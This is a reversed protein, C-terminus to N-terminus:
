ASFAWTPLSAPAYREDSAFPRFIGFWRDDSVDRIVTPRHTVDINQEFVLRGTPSTSGLRAILEADWFMGGKSAAAPTACQQVIARWRDFDGAENRWLVCNAPHVYGLSTKAVAYRLGENVTISLNSSFAAETRCQAILAPDGIVHIIGVSDAIKEAALARRDTAVAVGNDIRITRFDDALDSQGEFIRSLRAFTDCPIVFDTVTRRELFKVVTYFFAQSGDLGLM